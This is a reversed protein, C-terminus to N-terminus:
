GWQDGMLCRDLLVGRNERELALQILNVLISAPILIPLCAPDLVILLFDLDEPVPDIFQLSFPLHELSSSLYTM